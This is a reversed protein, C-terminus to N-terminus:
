RRMRPLNGCLLKVVKLARRSKDADSTLAALLTCISVVATCASSTFALFRDAEHEYRRYRRCGDALPAM